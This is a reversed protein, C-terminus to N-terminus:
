KRENIIKKSGEIACRKAVDIASMSDQLSGVLVDAGHTEMIEILTELLGQQRHLVNFMLLSAELMDRWAPSVSNLNTVWQWTAMHKVATEYDVEVGEPMAQCAFLNGNPDAFFCFKALEEATM